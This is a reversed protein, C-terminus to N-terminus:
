STDFYKMVKSEGLYIEYSKTLCFLKVAVVKM